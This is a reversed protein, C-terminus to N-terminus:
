LNGGVEEDYPYFFKNKSKEGYIWFIKGDYSTNNSFILSVYQYNRGRTHWVKWDPYGGMYIIVKKGNQLTIPKGNTFIKSVENKLSQLEKSGLSCFDYCVRIGM